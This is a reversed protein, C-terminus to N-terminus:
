PNTIGSGGIGTGFCHGGTSLPIQLEAALWDMESAIVKWTNKREQFTKSM